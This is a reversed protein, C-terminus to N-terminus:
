VNLEGVPKTFAWFYKPALMGSKYIYVGMYEDRSSYVNYLSDDILNRYSIKNGNYLYKDYKSNIVVKPLYDFYSDLTQISDKICSIHANKFQEVPLADDISYSGSKVRRLATMTAFCGLKRGIDYVLSRVYTGKSCQVIFSVEDENVVIDYIDYITIAREKREITKGERALEYLKKGGVKIASYMPPVQMIDGVFSSIACVIQQKSVNVEARNVIEGTIDYSDTEIGLKMVVEYAKDGNTIISAIKTAKGICIPLVGTAMPDLTGTHGVKKISLKRRVINVVDHSTMGKDKDINIIGDIMIIENKDRAFRRGFM